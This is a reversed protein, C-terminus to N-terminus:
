LYDLAEWGGEQTWVWIEVFFAVRRYVGASGYYEEFISPVQHWGTTCFSCRWIWGHDEVRGAGASENRIYANVFIIQWAPVRLARNGFHVVSFSNPPGWNYVSGTDNRLM